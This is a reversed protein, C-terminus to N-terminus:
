GSLRGGAALGALVGAERRTLGRYVGRFFARSGSRLNRLSYGGEQVVLLPLGAGGIRRGAEELDRASLGFSGTPDGRMTDFGLPVVLFTPRFSGILELARELAELFRVPGAADPLPLNRNARLGPGEGREDAFGSFYPYAINPHGHISITLVEGRRWFINQCGNGHHFDIDLTAVRGQGCLRQAAIAANNFYCFGGFSRREAHHGPPRCLAYAVPRGALVEEAGTLAVDVAARAAAYANRDLPTFTDICYYGARVSLERPRREPRRIPFVYPYVPRAPDLTECVRKLYTVFDSDHVERIAAEPHPRPAVQNFLGTAALEQQLAEVRAPREVYGRDRVHHIRHAQTVIMAMARQVKGDTPPLSQELRVYRPERFRVPDEVVSEVVREIYDPGVLHSYKRRLILRMAARAESRRLSGKRGLGDFLLYPASSPGIPTEYETGAIPRVGYHEYFRLRSRNEGLEAPDRVAAPDDPLAELYLGRSGMRRLYERAAEYLASGVGGGKKEPRVAVWDLLSSNIEPFHNILAFGIVRAAASVAVLLISRFGFRFPEDLLRPIQDAYEAVAGFSARFIEQVQRVLEQDSALVGSYVRRIRIM